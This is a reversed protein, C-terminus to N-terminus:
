VGVDYLQDPDLDLGNVIQWLAGLAKGANCVEFPKLAENDERLIKLLNNYVEVLGMEAENLEDGMWNKM